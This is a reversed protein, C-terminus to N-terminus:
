SNEKNIESNCNVFYFAYIIENPKTFFLRINFKKGVSYKCGICVCVSVHLVCEYMNM